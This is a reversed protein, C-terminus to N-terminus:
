PTGSGALVRPTYSIAANSLDAFELTFTVSEGPDFMTDGNGTNTLGSRLYPSNLPAVLTTMGTRNFLTVNASLSDLALSIAGPVANGSTNAVTVTQIYHGTARVYRFGSRTISVQGTINLPGTVPANYKLTAYATTAGSQSKGTVYVSGQADLTLAAAGDYTDGSASYRAAWLQNGNADYKITAYEQIRGYIPVVTVGTSGGTVYVNGQADLKLDNAYDSTNGSATYPAAWLQNGQTDYKLTAASGTVYVNSQSDLALAVGGGGYYRAGWLQNGNPDYKITIGQYRSNADYTYGTVYVNGQADVALDHAYDSTDGPPSYLAVWLQNGNADYKITAAGYHSGSNQTVGTVYVNGLADLKLAYSSDYNDGPRQYLAVWIQNGNTDYKITGSVGTVYLSGQADLALAYGGGGAYRAVWLQNGNADYKITAGYFGNNADPSEGTVYVNGQQDVALAYAINFNNGPGHYRAVWLQNGNADYKITAYDSGTNVGSSQGTVYVNGQADVKVANAANYRNIPGNYRAVWAPTPTQAHAAQGPMFLTLLWAFLLLAFLRSRLSYLPSFM